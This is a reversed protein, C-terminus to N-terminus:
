LDGIFDLVLKNFEDPRDIHMAHGSDSIVVKKSHPIKQEMLDAFEKCAKLDLESTVILTPQTIKKLQQAARPSVHVAPDVHTLHWFSYDIGIQRTREAGETDLAGAFSSECWRDIAAKADERELIDRIEDLVSYAERVSPSDHGFVWPGVAILSRSMGPNTLVFNVAISSGMSSGCIHAKPMRLHNMLAKLDDHHSYPVGEEPMSSKGFGRVDYRLVKYSHSLPEFQDDWIRCDGANGHILVIPEGEGLVEYYLRTGNVEAYGTERALNM